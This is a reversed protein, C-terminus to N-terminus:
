SEWDSSRWRWHWLRLAARAPLLKQAVVLAAIVLMWGINMVSVAVLILM